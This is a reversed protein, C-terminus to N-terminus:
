TNQSRVFMGLTEQAFQSRSLEAQMLEHTRRLAATVDGSANVVVDNQTFKNAGKRSEDRDSPRAFLMEREKRRAIEANRNAQLQANRFEARTRDTM